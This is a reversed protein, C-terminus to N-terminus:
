KRPKKYAALLYQNIHNRVDKPQPLIERLFFIRQIIREKKNLMSTFKQQLYNIREEKEPIKLMLLAYIYNFATDPDFSNDSCYKLFNTQSFLLKDRKNQCEHKAKTLDTITDSIKKSAFYMFSLPDGIHIYDNQPKQNEEMIRNEFYKIDWKLSSAEELIKGSLINILDPNKDYVDLKLSTILKFIKKNVWNKEQTIYQEILQRIEKVKDIFNKSKKEEIARKLQQTIMKELFSSHTQANTADICSIIKCLTLFDDAHTAQTNAFAANTQQLFKKDEFLKADGCKFKTAIENISVKFSDKAHIFLHYSSNYMRLELYQCLIKKANAKLTSIDDHGSKAYYPLAMLSLDDKVQYAETASSHM